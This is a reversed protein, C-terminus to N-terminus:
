QLIDTQKRLAALVQELAADADIDAASIRVSIVRGDLKATYLQRGGNDTIVKPKSSRPRPGKSQLAQAVWGKISSETAGDTKIRLVAMTIVDIETPHEKVLQKIVQAANMGILDKTEELLAIIPAPLALMSLRMSVESQGTAFMLALDEQTKAYGAEKARAYIKAKAYDCRGARGENHVMLSREAGSDNKDFILAKITLHGLSRVARIRRHGSILEFRAGRPRVQIPDQQGEAAITHALNDIGVPDYRERAEDAPQYPSDDILAVDLEVMRGEVLEWAAPIAPSHDALKPHPYAADFANSIHVGAVHAVKGAAVLGSVKLPKRSGSM